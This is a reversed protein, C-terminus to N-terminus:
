SNKVTVLQRSSGLVLQWMNHVKWKIYLFQGCERSVRFYVNPFHIDDSTQAVTTVIRNPLGLGPTSRWSDIALIRLQGGSTLSWINRLISHIWFCFPCGWRANTFLERKATHPYRPTSTSPRPNNSENIIATWLKCHECLKLDDEQPNLKLREDRM